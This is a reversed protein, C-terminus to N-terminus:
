SRPAGSSIPTGDVALASGIGSASCSQRPNGALSTAAWTVPLRRETLGKVLLAYVKLGPVGSANKLMKPDTKRDESWSVHDTSVVTINGAALHRWLAEVEHRPRIPPNIKAKGGLRKVDNEEDLILYHICAEITADFGQGRYAKCLDYGRGLSCHM